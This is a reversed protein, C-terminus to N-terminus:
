DALVGPLVAAPSPSVNPGTFSFEYIADPLLGTAILSDCPVDPLSVEGELAASNSTNFIAFPGTESAAGLFNAGDILATRKKGSRLTRVSSATLYSFYIRRRCM